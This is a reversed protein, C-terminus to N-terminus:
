ELTYGLKKARQRALEKNGKAKNLISQATKEDLVSGKEVKPAGFTKIENERGAAKVDGFESEATKPGQMVDMESIQDVPKSFLNRLGSVKGRIKAETDGPQPIWDNMIRTFEQQTMGRPFLSKFVPLIAAQTSEFIGRNMRAKEGLNIRGAMGIGPKGIMNDLVDLANSAIQLGKGKEAQEASLKQAVSKQELHGKLIQQRAEPSFGSVDMGLERQFAANEKAQQQQGTLRQAISGSLGPVINQSAEALRDGLTPARKLIEVM